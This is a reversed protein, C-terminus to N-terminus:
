EKNRRFLSGLKKKAEKKAIFRELKEGELESELAMEESELEAELEMKKMELNAKANKAANKEATRGQFYFKAMMTALTGWTALVGLATLMGEDTYIFSLIVILLSLIAYMILVFGFSFPRILHPAMFPSTTDISLRTTTEEAALNEATKGLGTVADAIPKIYNTM